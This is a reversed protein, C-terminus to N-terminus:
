KKIIQATGKSRDDNWDIHSTLGLTNNDILKFYDISDEVVVYNGNDANFYMVYDHDKQYTYYDHAIMILMSSMLGTNFSGDAHILDKVNMLKEVHASNVYVYLNSIITVFVEITKSKSNLKSLEKSLNGLGSNNLNFGGVPRQHTPVWLYRDVVDKKMGLQILKDSLVQKIQTNAGYGSNSYLRGGTYKSNNKTTTKLEVKKGCIQLDGVVAMGIGQGTLSLFVEGIGQTPGLGLNGSLEKAIRKALDRAIANTLVNYVNGQRNNLLLEGDWVGGNNIIQSFFEIKEDITSPHNLVMQALSQHVSPNTFGVMEHVAIESLKFIEDKYIFNEIELIKAPDKIRDIQKSLKKKRQAIDVVVNDVINDSFM